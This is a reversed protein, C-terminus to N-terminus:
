GTRRGPHEPGDLDRDCPVGCAGGVIGVRRGYRATARGDLMRRLTSWGAGHVSLLDPCDASRPYPLGTRLSDNYVARACGSTRAPASCQGATLYIRDAAERGRALFGNGGRSFGPM